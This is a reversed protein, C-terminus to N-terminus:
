TQDDTVNKDKSLLLYLIELIGLSNILFLVLFWVKESLRAARWLAIGKWFLSWVLLLPFWPAQFIPLNQIQNLSELSMFEIYAM